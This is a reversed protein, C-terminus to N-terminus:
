KLFHKNNELNYNNTEYDKEYIWFYEKAYYTKNDLAYKCRINEKKRIEWMTKFSNIYNGYLDLQVIRNTDRKKKLLGKSMKHHIINESINTIKSIEKVTIKNNLLDQITNYDVYSKNFYSIKDLVFKPIENYMPFYFNVIENIKIYRADLAIFKYGNEIAYSEKILDHKENGDHYKSQFEFITNFGNLNPVYLDYKSTGGSLGKFGIDYENEVGVYYEKFLISLVAHLKSVSRENSCHPCMKQAKLNNSQKLFLRGCTIHKIELVAEKRGNNRTKYFLDTMIFEENDVLERWSSYSKFFGNIKIESYHLLDNKDM